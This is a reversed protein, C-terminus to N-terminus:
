AQCGPLPGSTRKRGGSCFNTQKETFGGLKGEMHIATQHHRIRSADPPTDSAFYVLQLKRRCNQLTSANQEVTSNIPEYLQSANPFM